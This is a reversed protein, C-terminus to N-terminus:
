DKQGPRRTMCQPGCSCEDVSVHDACCCRGENYACTKDGCHIETEATGPINDTATNGYGESSRYSACVADREGARAVEIGGLCCCGAKNHCCDYESCDLYTM